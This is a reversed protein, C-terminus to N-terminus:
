LANKSPLFSPMAHFFSILESLSRSEIVRKERDIFLIYAEFVGIEPVSLCLVSTAAM